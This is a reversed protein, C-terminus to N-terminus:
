DLLQRLEELEDAVHVPNDVTRRIIQKMISRIRNKVAHVAVSVHSEDTFGFSQAIRARSVPEVGFISPQLVRLDFANWYAQSGTAEYYTQCQQIAQELIMLAWRRDFALEPSDSQHKLLWQEEVNLSSVDGIAKQKAVERRAHDQVHNKLATCLLDRLRGRAADAREFLDRTLVVECFFSQALEAAEPGSIRKRRLWAYVPPWYSEILYDALENRVQNDASRLAELLDWDTDPFTSHSQELRNRMRRGKM